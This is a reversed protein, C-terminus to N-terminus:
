LSKTVNRGPCSAKAFNNKVPSLVHWGSLFPLRWVSAWSGRWRRISRALCILLLCALTQLFFANTSPEPVSVPDDASIGSFGGGGDSFSLLYSGSPFNQSGFPNDFNGSANYSDVESSDSYVIINAADNDPMSFNFSLVGGPLILTDSNALVASTEVDTILAGYISYPLSNSIALDYSVSQAIVGFPFLCMLILIKKM